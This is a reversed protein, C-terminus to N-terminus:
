QIYFGLRMVMFQCKRPYRWKLSCMSQVSSPCNVYSSMRWINHTKWPLPSGTEVLKMIASQRLYMPPTKSAYSCSYIPWGDSDSIVWFFNFVWEIHANWRALPSNRKILLSKMSHIPLQGHLSMPLTAWIQLLRPSLLFRRDQMQACHLSIQTILDQCLPVQSHWHWTHQDILLGLLEYVDVVYTQFAKWYSPRQSQTKFCRWHTSKQIGIISASLSFLLCYYVIHEPTHRTGRVYSLFGSSHEELELEGTRVKVPYEVHADLELLFAKASKIQVLLGAQETSKKWM